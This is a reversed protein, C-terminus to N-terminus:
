VQGQRVIESWVFPHHREMLAASRDGNKYEFFLDARDQRNVASDLNLRKITKLADAELPTNALSPDVKIRGTTLVLHFVGAPLTFPDLVDEFNNKRANMALCALRYNDWEYAQGAAKSKPAFHDTSAAGTSLRIYTALYACIGGYAGHLEKLCKTWHSPFKTGTPPPQNLPHQPYLRNFLWKHGPRRVKKDFDAPESQPQVPIM